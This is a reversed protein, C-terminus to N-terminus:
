GSMRRNDVYRSGYPSITEPSLGNEHLGFFAALGEALKQSALTVASLGGSIKITPIENKSGAGDNAKGNVKVAFELPYGSNQLAFCDKMGALDAREPLYPIEVKIAWGLAAETVDLFADLRQDQSYERLSRSIFVPDHAQEATECCMGHYKEFNSLKARWKGLEAKAAARGGKVRELAKSKKGAAMYRMLKQNRDEIGQELEKVMKRCEGLGDKCIGLYDGKGLKKEAKQYYYGGANGPGHEHHTFAKKLPYFLVDQMNVVVFGSALLRNELKAPKLADSVRFAITRQM